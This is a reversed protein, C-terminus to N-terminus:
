GEAGVQSANLWTAAEESEIPGQKIIVKRTRNRLGILNGPTGSKAPEARSGVAIRREANRMGETMATTTVEINARLRAGAGQM